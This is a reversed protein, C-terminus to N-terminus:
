ANGKIADVQFNNSWPIPWIFQQCLPYAIHQPPHTAINAKVRQILKKFNPFYGM